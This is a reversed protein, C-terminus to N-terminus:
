RIFASPRNTHFGTADQYAKAVALIRAEDYLQGVFTLSTGGGNPVVVCPHGTLNNALLNPDDAGSTVYLDVTSLLDHMAAGLKRRLRDAQLYEVAPVTRVARFTNAWFEPLYADGVTRTLEDFAAAAEVDLITSIADIPFDPLRISVLNTRATIRTLRDLVSAGLYSSRYGIRLGSVNLDASYNFPVDVTSADQSDAGRIAEFVIACDEVTRCIPGVKDMSWSLTMGGARSVRGFTPRLGSVRCRTAPSVISGYTESGIGFAILGAAVAASSGASSGSSGESLNWPNKTTGGFWTDGAAIAGLTTKAVLVAGAEELKRVVTADSDILQDRFPAAGWTTRYDRTSFLDKLGYPIGHLPGRYKGAAIEADAKAAQRLALEETLTVVCLLTKDHRKLRVLYLRTLETSTIQRTRIWQGLDRLPAFAIDALNTPAIATRTSSWIIPHQERPVIFNAPRPDFVLAPLDSNLLRVKRMAEYARRNDFASSNLTQLMQGRQSATFTLGIIKEMEAISAATIANTKGPTLARERIRFFRQAMEIGSALETVTSRAKVPQVNTAVWPQRLDETTWVDYTRGPFAPWSLKVQGSADTPNQTITVPVEVQAKLNAALLVAVLSSMASIKM